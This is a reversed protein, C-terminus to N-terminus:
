LFLLGCLRKGLATQPQRQFATSGMRAGRGGGRLRRRPAPRDKGAASDRSRHKLASARGWDGQHEPDPILSVGSRHAQPCSLSTHQVLGGPLGPTPLRSSPSLVLGPPCDEAVQSAELSEQDSRPVGGASAEWSHAMSRGPAVPQGDTSPAPAATTQGAHGTAAPPRCDEHPQHRSSPTPRRSAPAAEAPLRLCLLHAAQPAQPPFAEQPGHDRNLGTTWM